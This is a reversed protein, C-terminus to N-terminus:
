RMCTFAHVHLNLSRWHSFNRGLGSLTTKQPMFCVCVHAPMYEYMDVDENIAICDTTAKIDPLWIAFAYFFGGPVMVFHYAVSAVLV